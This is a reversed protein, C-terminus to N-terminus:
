VKLTKKLSAYCDYDTYVHTVFFQDQQLSLFNIFCHQFFLVILLFDNKLLKLAVTKLIVLFFCM